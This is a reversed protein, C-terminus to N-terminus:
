PDWGFLTVVLHFTSVELSGGHIDHCRRLQCCSGFQSSMNTHGHPHVCLNYAIFAKCCRPPSSPSTQMCVHVSWCPRRCRMRCITPWGKLVRAVLCVHLCTLLVQAVTRVHRRLARGRLGHAWMHALLGHTLVTFLL